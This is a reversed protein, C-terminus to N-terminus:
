AAPQPAALPAPSALHAAVPLGPFAPRITEDARLWDLHGRNVIVTGRDTEALSRAVVLALRADALPVMPARADLEALVSVGPRVHLWGDVHFRGLQASVPHPVTDIRRAPNGSFGTAEVAYLEDRAVLVRRQLTSHGTALDLISALDLVYRDEGNLFDTLRVPPLQLRGSIRADSLYGVFDVLM